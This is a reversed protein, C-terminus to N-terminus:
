SGKVLPYPITVKWGGKSVPAMDVVNQADEVLHTGIPTTLKTAISKVTLGANNMRHMWQVYMGNWLVTTFLFDYDLEILNRSQNELDDLELAVILKYEYLCTTPTVWQCLLGETSVFTPTMMDKNMAIANNVQNWLDAPNIAKLLTPKM